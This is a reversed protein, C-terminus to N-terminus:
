VRRECLLDNWTSLPQTITVYNVFNMRLAHFPMTKMALYSFKHREELVHVYGGSISTVRSHTVRAKM